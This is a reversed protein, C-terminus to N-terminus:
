VVCFHWLKYSNLTAQTSPPRAKRKWVGPALSASGNEFEPVLVHRCLKMSIQDHKRKNKLFSAVRYTYTHHIVKGLDSTFRWSNLKFQKLRSSCFNKNSTLPDIWETKAVWICWWRLIKQYKECLYLLSIHFLSSMGLFGWLVPNHCITIKLKWRRGMSSM